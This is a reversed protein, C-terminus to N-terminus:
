RKHIVRARMDTVATAFTDRLHSLRLLCSPLCYPVPM